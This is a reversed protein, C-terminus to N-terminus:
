VRAPPPLWRQVLWAAVLAYVSAILAGTSVDSLFHKEMDIRALIAFLPIAVLVARLWRIPCAAALPLLLGFYFSSHGSPFSDGHAFWVHTWDGQEFVKFPRLRGFADKAIIMTQLTAFQVLGAAILAFGLRQRRGARLLLTGGVIALWGIVWICWAEGSVTDLAGLGWVFVRASEIGSSHMWEALARDVGAFGLAACAAAILAAIVLFRRDM